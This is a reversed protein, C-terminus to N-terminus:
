MGNCHLSDRLASACTQASLNSSEHISPAYWSVCSSKPSFAALLWPLPKQPVSRSGSLITVRNTSYSNSQSQGAFLWKVCTTLRKTCWPVFALWKNNGHSMAGQSRTAEKAYMEARSPMLIHQTHRCDYISPHCFVTGCALKCTLQTQRTTSLVYKVSFLSSTM